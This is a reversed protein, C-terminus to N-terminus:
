ALLTCLCTDSYGVTHSVKELYLQSCILWAHGYNLLQNIINSCQGIHFSFLMVTAIISCLIKSSCSYNECLGGLAVNHVNM